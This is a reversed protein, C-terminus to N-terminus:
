LFSLSWGLIAASLHAVAHSGSRTATGIIGAVEKAVGIMAGISTGAPLVTRAGVAFIFPLNVTTACPSECCTCRSWWQRSWPGRATTGPVRTGITMRMCGTCAMTSSTTRIWRLHTTCRTARCRSLGPCAPLQHWHESQSSRHRHRHEGSCGGARRSGASAGLALTLLIILQRM